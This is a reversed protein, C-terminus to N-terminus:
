LEEFKSELEKIRDNIFDIMSKKMENRTVDAFSSLYINRDDSAFVVKDDVFM